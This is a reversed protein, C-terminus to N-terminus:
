LFYYDTLKRENIELAPLCVSWTARLQWSGFFTNRHTIHPNGPWLDCTHGLLHQKPTNKTKMCIIFGNLSIFCSKETHYVSDFKQRTNGLTGDPVSGLIYSIDDWDRWWGIGRGTASIDNLPWLGLTTPHFAEQSWVPEDARKSWNHQYSYLNKMNDCKVNKLNFQKMKIFSVTRPWM